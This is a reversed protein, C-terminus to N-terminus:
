ADSGKDEKVDDGLERELEQAQEYRARLEAAITEVSVLAAALHSLHRRPIEWVETLGAVEVTVRVSEETENAVTEMQETM